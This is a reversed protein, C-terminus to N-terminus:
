PKSAPVQPKQIQKLCYRAEPRLAPDSQQSLNQVVPIAASAAPGLEALFQVLRSQTCRRPKELAAIVKPLASLANKGLRELGIAGATAIRPDPDSLASELLTVIENKGLGTAALATIAEVRQEPIGNQALPLLDGIAPESAEGLQGLLFITRLKRPEHQLDKRLEDVALKAPEGINTIMHGYEKFDKGDRMRQFLIPGIEAAAPGLMVIARSASDDMQRQSIAELLLPLAPKAAPGLTGLIQLVSDRRRKDKALDMLQPLAQAVNPGLRQLAATSEHSQEGEEVFVKMVRPLVDAATPDIRAIAIAALSATNGEDSNLLKRLAPVAAIAKGELNGLLRVARTRYPDSENEVAQTLEVLIEPSLLDLDETSLAPQAEDPFSRLCEIYLERIEPQDSKIQLLARMADPPIGGTFDPQKVVRILDPIAEISKTTQAALRHIIQSAFNLDKREGASVALPLMERLVPLVVQFSRPENALALIASKRITLDEDKIFGSLAAVAADDAEIFTALLAIAWERSALPTEASKAIEALLPIAPTGIRQLGASCEESTSQCGSDKCSSLFTRIEPFAEVAPPGATGIAGILNAGLRAIEYQLENYYESDMAAERQTCSTLAARLAPLDEVRVGIQTIALVVSHCAETEAATREPGDQFYNGLLTTLEPLASAVDIEAASLSMVATVAPVSWEPQPSKLSQLIHPLLGPERPSLRALALAALQQVEVKDSALGQRLAPLLTSVEFQSDVLSDLITKRRTSSESHSLLIGEFLPTADPELRMLMQTAMSATHECNLWPLLSKALAAQNGTAPLHQLLIAALAQDDANESNLEQQLVKECAPESLATSIAHWASNKLFANDSFLFKSFSKVGALERGEFRSVYVTNSVYKDMLLFFIDPDNDGPDLKLRNVARSAAEKLDDSNTTALLKELTPIAVKAPYGIHGLASIAYIQVNYNNDDLLKILTPVHAQAYERMCGLANAAHARQDPDHKTLQGAIEPIAEKALEGLGCFIEVIELQLDGEVTPFIKRLGPVAFRASHRSLNLDKVIQWGYDKQPLAAVIAQQVAVNDPAIALLAKPVGLTSEQGEKFLAILDPVAVNAKPGLRGLSSVANSRVTYDPDKLAARLDSILSEPSLPLQGLMGTAWERVNKSEDKTLQRVLDVTERSKDQSQKIGALAVQKLWDDGQRAAVHLRKILRAPDAPPMEVLKSLINGHIAHHQMIAQPSADAPLPKEFHEALDFLPQAFSTEEPPIAHISDNFVQRVLEPHDLAERLTPVIQPAAISRRSLIVAAAARVQLPQEQNNLRGVIKERNPEDYAAADWHDVLVLVAARQIDAPTTADSLIKLILQLGDAKADRIGRVINKTEKWENGGSLALQKLLRNVKDTLNTAYLAMANAAESRVDPNSDSQAREILPLAAPM